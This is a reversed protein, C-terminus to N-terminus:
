RARRRPFRGGCRASPPRHLGRRVWGIRVEELGVWAERLLVEPLVQDTCLLDGEMASSIPHVGACTENAQSSACSSSM